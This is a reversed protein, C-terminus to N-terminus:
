AEFLADHQSKNRKNYIKDVFRKNLPPNMPNVVKNETRVMHIDTLIVSLPGGM